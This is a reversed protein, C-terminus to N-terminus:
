HHAEWRRLTKRPSAESTRPSGSSGLSRRQCPPPCRRTCAASRAPASWSESLTQGGAGPQAQQRQPLWCGRGRREWRRRRWRGRRWWRWRGRGRERWRAARELVQSPGRRPPPRSAHAPSAPSPPRPPASSHRSPSSRARLWARSPGTTDQGASRCSPAAARPVRPHAGRAARSRRPSRRRPSPARARAWPRSRPPQAAAARWPARPAPCAQRPWGVRTRRERM